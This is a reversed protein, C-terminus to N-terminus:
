GEMHKKLASVFSNYTPEFLATLSDPACECDLTVRTGEGDPLARVTVVHKEVGPSDVLGYSYTRAADDRSLEEEVIEMAGATLPRRNGEFRGSQIGPAWGPLGGFDGVVKWVEDPPRSIVTEAHISAM